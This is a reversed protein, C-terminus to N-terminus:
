IPSRILERSKWGGEGVYRWGERCKQSVLLYELRMGANKMSRGFALTM